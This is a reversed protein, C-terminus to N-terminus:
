RYRDYAHYRGAYAPLENTIPYAQVLSPYVVFLDWGEYAAFDDIPVGNETVSQERPAFLAYPFLVIGALLAYAKLPLM